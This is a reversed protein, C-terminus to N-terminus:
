GIVDKEAPEAHYNDFEDPPAEGELVLLGEERDDQGGNDDEPIVAVDGDLMVESEDREGHDGSNETCNSSECANKRNERDKERSEEIDDPIDTEGETRLIEDGSGAAQSQEVVGPETTGALEVDGATRCGTLIMATAAVALAAAYKPLKAKKMPEIKM